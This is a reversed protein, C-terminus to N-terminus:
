GGLARRLAELRNELEAVRRTLDADATAGEAIAGAPTRAALPSQRAFKFWGVGITVLLAVTIVVFRLISDTGISRGVAHVMTFLGGLLLGNALVVFREGLALGVVLIATAVVLLIISTILSWSEYAQQYAQQAEQAPAPSPGSQLDTPYDPNPYFTDLGIGVFGVVALGLFFSYILQLARM